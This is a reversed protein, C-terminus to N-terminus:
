RAKRAQAVVVTFNTGEWRDGEPWYFTVRHATQRHTGGDAPRRRISASVSTTRMSTASPPGTTWRGACGPRRWRRSVCRAARSSVRVQGDFRWPAYRSPGHRSAESLPRRDAAAYRIRATRSPDCCSSTSPTHGSWRDHRAPRVDRNCTRRLFRCRHGLDTRLDSRFRRGAGGDGRAAAAGRRTAQRWSTIRASASSFRGYGGSAPAMSPRAM